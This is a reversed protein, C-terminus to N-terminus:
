ASVPARELASSRHAAAARWADYLPALAAGWSRTAAYQVSADAARQRLDPHRCWDAVRDAFADADGAPCVWGTTGNLMHERPGGQDTVLVPLGCAQAELVVNGLSDTASPFVFVDASAMARAVHAPPLSGTFIAEPCAAELAPRMPGDGVFILRHPLGRQRLAQQLPAMM